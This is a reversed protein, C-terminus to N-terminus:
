LLVNKTKVTQGNRASSTGAYALFSASTSGYILPDLLTSPTSELGTESTGIYMHLETQLLQQHGKASPDQPYM